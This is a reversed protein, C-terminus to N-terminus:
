IMKKVLDNIKEKRYGLVGGLAFQKKIGGQEFGGKPPSLKFFPKLGPLDKLEKKFEMIQKVFEGIDMNLKEKVYAETLPKKLALRGRNEMLKKLTSEDIEGWTAHDKIKKIMGIYSDSNSVVVCTHKKYLRLMKLTDKPTKKLGTKGKIRVIVIRRNEM